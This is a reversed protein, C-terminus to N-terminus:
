ANGDGARKRGTIMAWTLNERHRLSEVIVGCVHFGVLVLILTALTEHLEEMADSGFWADTTQLWGTITTGAIVLLLAVIMAGGAPNHGLYRREKGRLLAGLYALVARPGRVFDGFRAHRPGVFGWLVRLGVLVMVAYGLRMHLWKVEDATIWAAAILAAQSWHYLRVFPDWVKVPGAEASADTM